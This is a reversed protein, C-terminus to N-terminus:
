DQICRELKTKMKLAFERNRKKIEKRHRLYSLEFEQKWRIMEELKKNHDQCKRALEKVRAFALAFNERSEQHSKKHEDEIKKRSVNVQEILEQAAKSINTKQEGDLEFDPFEFDSDSDDNNNNNNKINNNNIKDNM